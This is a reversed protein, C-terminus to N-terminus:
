PTVREYAFPSNSGFWPFITLDWTGDERIETIWADVAAAFEPDDKPLMFALESDTFPDDANVQCLGDHENAAWVIEPADSIMLDADGAVIQEFITNNDSFRIIQAESFNEDAFAENTGGIPTIVTNDPENIEDITDFEEERGCTTIAAKGGEILPQSFTVQAAREDTLSIGGVAIDCSALFEPMLDSWSTLVWELEVNKRKAFDEMLAVDIGELDDGAQGYSFPRYDGTACATLVGDDLAGETAIASQSPSSAPSASESGSLAGAQCGVLGVLMLGAIAVVAMRSM